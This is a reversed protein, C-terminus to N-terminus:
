PTLQSPEDKRPIAKMAGEKQLSLLYATVAAIRRSATRPAGSIPMVPPTSRIETAKKTAAKM